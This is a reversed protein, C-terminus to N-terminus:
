APTVMEGLRATLHANESYDVPVDIVCVRRSAIADQLVSQLEDGRQLRYGKAGFSEALQVFDPNGFRVATHRGFEKMQKMEILGYGGDNWVLVIVPTNIRVATELEQVNMLFGADGTAAVITKEPYLLKAAIAGPLAIGMSAFGNSIICTNPEESRYMRALWMKHAGVDSIVIDSSKLVTRLDWILKQPKIPLQNDEAHRNMEDILAARLYRLAPGEHPSAYEAIYHLSLSIDGIVETDVCYHADVEAPVTDIHLIKRDRSPHWLRPHYEVMDYGICIILDAHDFGVNVYDRTQLGVSGLAMPHRFPIAGKAMFTNAAPINLKSAFSKLAETARGRIVGHGVLIIPSRAESILQAARMVSGEAPQVPESYEISLPQEGAVQMKAVNEPLEIFSASGKQSTASKFAKRITEPITSPSLVRSAYGTIPEFMRVLDLVQHSEKHLRNTSAQGAIAVLPANGMNADAVGTVLNTAGPGLTSLCVGPKGTLRGVLDAMFAAGQEHRTMVFQISSENLADMLDLNEEGPVGFIYEVGENELCRLFLDAAKM